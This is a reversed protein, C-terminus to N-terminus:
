AAVNGESANLKDVLAQARNLAALLGPSDPVTFAAMVRREERLPFERAWVTAEVTWPEDGTARIHVEWHDPDPEGTRCIRLGGSEDKPRNDEIFHGHIPREDPTIQSEHLHPWRDEHAGCGKRTCPFVMIRERQSLGDIWRDLDTTSILYEDWWKKAPVKIAPLKSARIAEEVTFMQLKYRKAAEKITLVACRADKTKGSKEIVASAM